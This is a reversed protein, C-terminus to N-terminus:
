KAEPKNKNLFDIIDQVNVFKDIQNDSIEVAFEEEAHIIFELMALSDEMLVRLESEPKIEAAPKGSYDSILNILKDM